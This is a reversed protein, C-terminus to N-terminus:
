LAATTMQLCSPSSTLGRIAILLAAIGEKGTASQGHVCILLLSFCVCVCVSLRQQQVCGACTVQRICLRADYSQTCARSNAEVALKATAQRLETHLKQLM